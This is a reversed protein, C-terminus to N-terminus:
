APVEGQLLLSIQYVEGEVACLDNGPESMAELRAGLERLWRVEAILERVDAEHADLCPCYLRAGATKAHGDCGVDERAEIAALRQEDM